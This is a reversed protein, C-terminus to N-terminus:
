NKILTLCNFFIQDSIFLHYYIDVNLICYNMLSFIQENFKTAQQIYKELFTQSCGILVVLRYFFFVNIFYVVNVKYQLSSCSFVNSFTMLCQDLLVLALVTAHRLVDEYIKSEM